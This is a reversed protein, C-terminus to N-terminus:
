GLKELKVLHYSALHKLPTRELLKELPVLPSRLRRPLRHIPALAIGRLGVQRWRTGCLDQIDDGSLATAAHWGRPRYGVWRRRLANPTDFILIGGPRLVRWCEDLVSGLTRQPLHMFFHMTFVTDFSADPVPVRWAPALHVRKHPWRKVCCRVMEPSLDVGESALELFRGTGCALDLVRPGLVWGKLLSRELADLYAGYSNGFRNADYTPALADYYAIVERAEGLLEAGREADGPDAPPPTNSDNRSNAM